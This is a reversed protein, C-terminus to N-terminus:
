ITKLGASRLWSSPTSLYPKMSVYIYTWTKEDNALIGKVMEEDSLKFVPTKKPTTGNSQAKDMDHSSSGGFIKFVDM